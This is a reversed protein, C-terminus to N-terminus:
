KRRMPVIEPLGEIDEIMKGKSKKSYSGHGKAQITLKVSLELATENSSRYNPYFQRVAMFKNRKM